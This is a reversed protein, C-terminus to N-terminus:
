VIKAALLDYMRILGALELPNEQRVVFLSTIQNAEMRKFAEIALRGTEITKPSKTMMDIANKQIAAAGNALLNRRIDGDSVAGLLRGKLDLVPVVGFNKQTVAALVEHFSNNEHVVPLDSGVTKMLDDVLSLRRGLAGSPHLKAFDEARFGRAEMVAVALADGVAMTVSTSTTPALNHPCSEKQVSCDLVLDSLKGLTSEIKGTMAVIKVGLRRSHRVVELVEHTEGGYAIALLVDTLQIVGLDGHLAEAPHLFISPTGTSALTASIKRAVHGSKGLGTIVIKGQASKIIDATSIFDDGLQSAKTQIAEAALALSNRASALYNVNSPM